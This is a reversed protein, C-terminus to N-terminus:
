SGVKYVSVWHERTGNDVATAALPEPAQTVPSSSSAMDANPSTVDRGHRELARPPPAANRKNRKTWTAGFVCITHTESM